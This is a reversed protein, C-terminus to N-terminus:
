GRSGGVVAQRQYFGPRVALGQELNGQRIQPMVEEVLPDDTAPAQWCLSLFPAGGTAIANRQPNGRFMLWRDTEVSESIQGIGVLKILWDLAEDGNTFLPVKGAAAKVALQPHNRRFALLAERAKDPEGAQLWGAAMALSLAPEFQDSASASDALRQLTLAGALHRGHDLHHLGLLFTAEYGARTHFFRQSVQALGQADGAAVAQQLLQKAKAGFELEYLERGERPM